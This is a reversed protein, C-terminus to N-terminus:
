YIVTVFAQVKMIIICFYIGSSEKRVLFTVEFLFNM